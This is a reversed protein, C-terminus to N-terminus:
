FKLSELREAYCVKVVLPLGSESALSGAIRNTLDDKM